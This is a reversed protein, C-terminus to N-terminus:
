RRTGSEDSVRGQKEEQKGAGAAVTELSINLSHLSNGVWLKQIHQLCFTKEAAREPASILPLRSTTERGQRIDWLLRASM